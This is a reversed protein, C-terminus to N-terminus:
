SKLPIVKQLYYKSSAFRLSFFQDNLKLYNIHYHHTKVNMCLQKHMNQNIDLFAFITSFGSILKLPSGFMNKPSGFMNKARCKSGM